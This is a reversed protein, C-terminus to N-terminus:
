LGLPGTLQQVGQATKGWPWNIPFVEAPLDKFNGSVGLPYPQGVQLDGAPAQPYFLHQVQGAASFFHVLDSDIGSCFVRRDLLGSSSRDASHHPEVAGVGALGNPGM